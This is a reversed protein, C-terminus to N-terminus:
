IKKVYVYMYKKSNPVPVSYQIEFTDNKCLLRMKSIITEDQRMLVEHTTEGTQFKPLIFTDKHSLLRMNIFKIKFDIWQTEIIGNPLTTEVHKQIIAKNVLTAFM